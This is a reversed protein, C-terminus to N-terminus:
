HVLGKTNQPPDNKIRKISYLHFGTIQHSSDFAFAYTIVAREYRCTPFVAYSKGEQMEKISVIKRFRGQPQVIYYWLGRADGPKYMELFAPSFFKGALDFKGHNSLAIFQDAIASDETQANCFRPAILSFAAFLGLSILLFRKKMYITKHYIRTTFKQLNM